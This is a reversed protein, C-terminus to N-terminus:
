KNFNITLNSIVCNHFLPKIQSIDNSNTNSSSPQKGLYSDFEELDMPRTFIDLDLDPYHNEQSGNTSIVSSNKTLCKSLADGMSMKEKESVRQYVALSSVSKHGTVSMIQANNFNARSLLTAGTARISHNTYRRSLNLQSSLNGMFSSLTKEGIPSACYWTTDAEFFSNKPRQWLRECKDNLKSTYLKFSFVPCSPDGPRAPMIGSTVTKNNERNNKNLEDMSKYVFERGTEVDKKVAFTFKTMKSFNEGGRRTFYLRIDFQVKNQLHYPTDLKLLASSYIQKLEEEKIEPFHKTDGKGNTKLEKMAARFSMNSSRFDHDKIIDIGDKRTLQLHRNLSFRLNELSSTKYFNGDVKRVNLYFHTLIRNLKESDFSEFENPEGRSKLYESLAKSAKKNSKKTNISHINELMGDIEVEDRSGFREM